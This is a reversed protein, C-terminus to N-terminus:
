LINRMMQALEERDDAGCLKQMKKIGTNQRPKPSSCQQAMASYSLEQSLLHLLMFDTEDCQNFMTELKALKTFEM